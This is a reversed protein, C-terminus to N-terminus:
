QAATTSKFRKEPTAGLAKSREESHGDHCGHCTRTEGCRLSHPMNDMAITNGDKDVGSMLFPTECPVEVRLSGDANLPTISHTVRSKFGATTPLKKWNELLEIKFGTVIVPYLPNANGQFSIRDQPNNSQPIPFLEAMRAMVVQLFSKDGVLPAIKQPTEQGFREKYTSVSQADWCNWKDEKCAIVESQEKDFPNTVVDVRALRIEKKCTPEGGMAKRSAMSISAAEYCWGRAHTFLFEPGDGHWAAAYGARGAARGDKHFRPLADQDTGYPTISKLTSPTYRASGPRSDKNFGETYNLLTSLGESEIREWGFIMGLAGTSNGRYYNSVALYNKHIEAVPRLARMQTMGEGKRAPDVWDTLYAASKINGSGHAGLEVRGIAGNSDVSCIWWQNRPTHQYGREGFGQWCSYLIDGNTAVMPNMAFPTEPTLNVPESLVGAKITAKYVQLAKFPYYNNDGTGLPAYTGARDSAFVLCDNGCWDPMRDNHGTSLRTKKGNAMDYLWLEAGTADFDFLDTMPGGWVRLPRKAKGRSVSYAIFRGNPSVKAEQATCINESETCNEIVTQTIGDDIVVDAESFRYVRSVDTVHQWNAADEVAGRNDSYSKTSRPQRTYVIVNSTPKYLLVKRWVASGQITLGSITVEGDVVVEAYGTQNDLVWAIKEGVKLEFNITNRLTLDFSVSGPEGIRAGGSGTNKNYRVPISLTTETDVQAASNWELGLNHATYVIVGSTPKSLVVDRWVAGSQLALGSITVEGAVAVDAFGTQNGFVWAVQEGVNLEFNKTRRLTLDFTVSDPQDAIGGGLATHRTYRVPISLTTETDVQNASYWELGLNYHGRTATWNNATSNTFVPLIQDHRTDSLEGSYMDWFPMNIGAEVPNHGANHWTGFCAIKKENCFVRFFDLDFVVSTDAVSGNVRYYIGKLADSHKIIDAKTPDQGSWAKRVAADKWYIGTGPKVVLTQPVTAFVRTIFSQWFPDAEKLLLSQLIAGSGGYSTGEFTVGNDLDIPNGWDWTKTLSLGIRQSNSNGFYYGWWGLPRIGDVTHSAVDPYHGACPKIVIFGAEAFDIGNCFVGPRATYGSLKVKLKLANDNPTNTPVLFAVPQKWNGGNDPSVYGPANIFCQIRNFGHLTPDDPDSCDLQAPSGSMAGVSISVFLTLVAILYTM